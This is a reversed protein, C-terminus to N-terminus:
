DGVFNSRASNILDIVEEDSTEEFHTYFQGVASFDHPTELVILEDVEPRIKELSDPAAVPIALILKKPKQRKIYHIAAHMTSGTAIGDDVLIVIKDKLDHAEHNDRYLSARRKAEREKEDITKELYKRSVNGAEILMQDLFAEGDEAVAGIAFEPNGPAPIKRPTVIDLPAKLAKAIEYGVVVGGRPLGIVIADSHEKYKILSKALAEGATKRDHFSM